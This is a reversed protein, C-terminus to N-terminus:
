AAGKKLMRMLPSTGSSQSAEDDDDEVLPSRFRVAKRRSMTHARSDFEVGQKMAWEQDRRAVYAGIALAIVLDDRANVGRKKGTELQCFSSMQDLLRECHIGLKRENVLRELGDVFLARSKVNTDVGLKNASLFNGRSDPAGLRRYMNPYSLIHALHSIVTMGQAKAEVVMLANNYHAGLGYLSEAFLEANCKKTYTAAVEGTELELVVAGSESYNRFDDHESAADAAVLYSRRPSPPTWVHTAGDTDQTIFPRRERTVGINFVSIPSSKMSGRYWSLTANDFISVRQAGFAEEPTFPYARQFSAVGGRGRFSQMMKRRWAVHALTVPIHKAVWSEENGRELMWVEYEDLEDEIATAQAETLELCYDESDTWPWFFSRWEGHEGHQQEHEVGGLWMSQFLDKPMSGTSEIFIATDAHDLVTPRIAEWFQDINPIFPFESIHLIHKTGGRGKNKGAFAALIKSQTDKFKMHRTSALTLFKGGACTADGDGAEPNAPDHSAFVMYKQDWLDEVTDTEHALVQVSLNSKVRARAYSWAAVGSSVGQQRAKLYIHRIPRGLRYDEEIARFIDRQIKTPEFRLAGGGSKPVIFVGTEYLYKLAPETVEFPAELTHM